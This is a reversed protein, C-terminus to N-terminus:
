IRYYDFMKDLDIIEKTLSDLSCKVLGDTKINIASIDTPLIDKILSHFIEILIHQTYLHLIIGSSNTILSEGDDDDDDDINNNRISIAGDNFIIISQESTLCVSSVNESTICETPLPRPNKSIIEGIVNVYKKLCQTNHSIHDIIQERNIYHEM